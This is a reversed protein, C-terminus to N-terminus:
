IYIYIDSSIEEEHGSKFYGLAWICTHYELTIVSINCVHFHFLNLNGENIEKAFAYTLYRRDCEYKDPTEAPSSRHCRDLLVHYKVPLWQKQYQLSQSFYRFLSFQRLVISTMEVWIRWGYIGSGSPCYAKNFALSVVRFSVPLLLLQICWSSTITDYCALVIFRYAYWISYVFMNWLDYHSDNFLFIESYQQCDTFQAM